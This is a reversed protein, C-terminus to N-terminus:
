AESPELPLEAHVVFGGDANPGAEVRGGLLSVRERIGILGHGGNRKPRGGRGNDLIEVDLRDPEYGIRVHARTAGSHKRVNTLAEQVIRYAALDVTSPLPRTEGAVEFEVPLGSQQADAVLRELAALGPQPELPARSDSERLLGVLQRMEALASRATQQVTALPEEARTPDHRLLRSAADAQVAIVGIAHAVIDHLERAIRGREAAVADRARAEREAELQGALERLTAARERERRLAQGVLWPVLSFVVIGLPLNGARNGPAGLADVLNAALLVGLAAVAHRQRAHAAASYSAIIACDFSIVAGDWGAALDDVVIAAAVVAACALPSTRRWALPLTLAFATSVALPTPGGSMLTGTFVLALKLGLLAAALAVDRHPLEPRRGRVSVIRAYYCRRGPDDVTRRM